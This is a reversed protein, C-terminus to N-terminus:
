LRRFIDGLYQSSEVVVKEIGDLDKKLKLKYFRPDEGVFRTAPIRIDCDLCAIYSEQLNVMDLGGYSTIGCRCHYIYNGKSSIILEADYDKGLKGDYPSLILKVIGRMAKLESESSPKPM